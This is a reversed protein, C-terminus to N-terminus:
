PKEPPCYTWDAPASNGSGDSSFAPPRGPEYGGGGGGGQQYWSAPVGGLPAGDDFRADTSNACGDCDAAPKADSPVRMPVKGALGRMPTLRPRAAAPPPPAADDVVLRPLDLVPEPAPAPEPRSFLRPEPARVPPSYPVLDDTEEVVAPSRASDRPLAAESATPAAAPARMTVVAAMGAGALLLVALLEIGVGSRSRAPGGAIAPAARVPAPQPRPEPSMEM